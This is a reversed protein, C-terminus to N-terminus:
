LASSGGEIYKLKERKSLCEQGRARSECKGLKKDYREDNVLDERHYRNCKDLVASDIPPPASWLSWGQMEKITDFCQQLKTPPTSSCRFLFIAAMALIFVIAIWLPFFKEPKDNM